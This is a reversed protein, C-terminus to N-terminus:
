TKEPRFLVVQDIGETEQWDVKVKESSITDVTKGVYNPEIPLHRSYRRDILTVLEISKPRGFALLADMGARITRGTYLVDDVLIVKKDEVIFNIETSQPLLPSERRRFDDRFFTVDLNGHQIQLGPILSKLIRVLRAALYIGRPQLGIIVSDSFDNHNEILQFSLRNLTIEFQKSNIILSREMLSQRLAPCLYFKLILYGTFFIERM